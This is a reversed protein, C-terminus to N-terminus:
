RVFANFRWHYSMVLCDTFYGRQVGITWRDCNLLDKYFQGFPSCGGIDTM